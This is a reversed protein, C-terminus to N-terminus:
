TTTGIVSYPGVYEDPVLNGTVGNWGEFNLDTRFLIPLIEARYIRYSQARIGALWSLLTGGSKSPEIELRDPSGVLPSSRKVARFIALGYYDNATGLFAGYPTSAMTRIGYDFIGGHPDAANALGNTTVASFYWSNPTRYLHGGMNHRLLPGVAPDNRSGTSSKYTGVYLYNYPDTMYWAHDNLTHGFGAGLNSIPYKWENRSTDFRPQGIVLAWTDDPNIRIIETASATGVYLRGYHVDM